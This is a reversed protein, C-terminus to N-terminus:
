GPDSPWSLESKSGSGVETTAAAPPAVDAHQSGAARKEGAKHEGESKLQARAKKAAALASCECKVHTSRSKRLSRCHQCQTVPRGKKAIEVLKRDRHQCGSVRHGRICAECAMKKGDILM